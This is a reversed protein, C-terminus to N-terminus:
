DADPLTLNDYGEGWTGYAGGIGVKPNSVQQIGLPVGGGIPIEFLQVGSQSFFPQSTTIVTEEGM